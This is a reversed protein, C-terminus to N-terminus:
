FGGEAEPDSIPQIIEGLGFEIRFRERGKVYMAVLIPQEAGTFTINLGLHIAGGTM